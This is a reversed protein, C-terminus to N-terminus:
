RNSKCENYYKDRFAKIKRDKDLLGGRDWSHADRIYPLLQERLEANDGAMFAITTAIDGYKLRMDMVSAAIDAVEDCESKGSISDCGVLIFPIILILFKM